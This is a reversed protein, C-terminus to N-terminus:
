SEAARSDVCGIVMDVRDLRTRCSLNHPIGHRNLNWFLNVRSALIVAKSLGLESQTFPQRICNTASVFDGDM